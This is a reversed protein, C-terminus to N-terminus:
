SWKSRRCQGMLANLTKVSFHRLCETVKWRNIPDRQLSNCLLKRINAHQIKGLPASWTRLQEVTERFWLELLILGVSYVDSEETLCPNPQQFLEPAFYQREDDKREVLVQLHYFCLTLM